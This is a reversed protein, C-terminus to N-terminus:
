KWLRVQVSQSEVAKVPLTKQPKVADDTVPLSREALSPSHASKVPVEVTVTLSRPLKIQSLECGASHMRCTVARRKQYPASMETTIPLVIGEAVGRGVVGPGVGVGGGGRVGDLLHGAELCLTTEKLRDCLM